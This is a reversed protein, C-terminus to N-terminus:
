CSPESNLTPTWARLVAGARAFYAKWFARLSIQIANPIERRPELGGGVVFVCVGRLQAVKGAQALRDILRGIQASSLQQKKLILGDARNLGWMNSVVLLIRPGTPETAFLEGAAMLGGLVDTGQVGRQHAFLKRAQRKVVEAQQALDLRAYYANPASPSPKFRHLIPWDITALSSTQFPAAAVMGREAAAHDALEGLIRVAEARQAATSDLSYDALLVRQSVATRASVTDTAASVVLVVLCGLLVTLKIATM